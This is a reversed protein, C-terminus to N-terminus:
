PQTKSQEYFKVIDSLKGIIEYDDDQLTKEYAENPVLVIRLSWEDKKRALYPSHGWLFLDAAYGNLIIQANLGSSGENDCVSIQTKNTITGMTNLEM